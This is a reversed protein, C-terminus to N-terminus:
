RVRGSSLRLHSRQCRGDPPSRCLLERLALKAEDSLHEGLTAIAEELGHDNDDERTAGDLERLPLRDNVPIRRAAAEAATTV